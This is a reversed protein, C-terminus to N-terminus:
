ANLRPRWGKDQYVCGCPLTVTKSTQKKEKKAVETAM